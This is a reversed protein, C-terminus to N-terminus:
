LFFLPDTSNYGRWEEVLTYLRAVKTTRSATKVYTWGGPAGCQGPPTGIQWVGGNPVKRFRSYYTVRAVPFSVPYDNRNKEKLSKYQALSWQDTKDYDQDDLSAWDDWTRQAFPGDDASESEDKTNRKNNKEHYARSPYKYYPRDPKLRGCKKHEETSRREEGWDLEYIPDGIQTDQGNSQTDPRPLALTVEMSGELSKGREIVVEAVTYISPYGSMTEGIAPEM